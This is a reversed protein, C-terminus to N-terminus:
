FDDSFDFTNDDVTKDALAYESVRKEFFNTKSELSIMDMFDFSNTVNYIKDYGLQVCLRDAVFQIYQTMMMSNMGILRCSLAENIFETILEKNEVLSNSNKPIFIDVKEHFGTWGENALPTNTYKTITVVMKTNKYYYDYIGDGLVPASLLKRERNKFKQKISYCNINNRDDGGSINACFYKVAKNAHDNRNDDLSVLVETENICKNKHKTPSNLVSTM